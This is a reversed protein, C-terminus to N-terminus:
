AARMATGAGRQGAENFATQHMFPGVFPVLNLLWGVFTGFKGHVKAAAGAWAFTFWLIGIGPILIVWGTPVKTGYKSNMENKTSVLWYLAYFPVILALAATVVPNRQNM